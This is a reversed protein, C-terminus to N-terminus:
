EQICVYMCVYMYIYIYIYIYIYMCYFAKYLIYLECCYDFSITIFLYIYLFHTM